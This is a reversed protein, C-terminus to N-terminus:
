INTRSSNPRSGSWSNPVTRRGRSAISARSARENIAASAAPRQLQCVTPPRQPKLAYESVFTRAACIGKLGVLLNSEAATTSHIRIFKSYMFNNLSMRLSDAASPYIAAASTVFHPDSPHVLQSGIRTMFDPVTAPFTRIPMTNTMGLIHAFVRPNAGYMGAILSADYPMVPQPRIVNRPEAEVDCTHKDLGLIYKISFANKKADKNSSCISECKIPRAPSSERSGSNRASSTDM